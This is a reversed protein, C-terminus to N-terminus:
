EFLVRAVDAAVFSRARDMRDELTNRRIVRGGASEVVVGGATTLDSEVQAALGKADLVQTALEADRPDVRVVLDVRDVGELAEVLLRSFLADYGAGERSGALTAAAEDFVREVSDGRARSVLMKAQLRAANVLKAGEGKASKEVQRVFGDSIRDAELRAEAEIMQAHESAEHLVADIDAQAQAELTALIDEIAM